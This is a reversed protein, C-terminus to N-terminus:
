NLFLHHPEYLKTYHISYSTIVSSSLLESSIVKASLRSFAVIVVISSPDYLKTYHISYSTIVIILNVGNEAANLAIEKTIDLCLVAKTVVSNEDYYSRIAYM